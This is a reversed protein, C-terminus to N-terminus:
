MTLTVLPAIHKYQGGFVEQGLSGAWIAEEGGNLTFISVGQKQPDQNLPNVHPRLPKM